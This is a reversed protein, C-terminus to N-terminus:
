FLSPLSTKLAAVIIEAARQSGQPTFHVIDYLYEKEPPIQAALDIVPIDNKGGTERIEDNFSDFLKKYEFYSSGQRSELDALSTKIIPDPIDKLRSPQTMLVPQIRHLRCLDIFLQLNRRFSQRMDAENYRIKRNRVRAFEDEDSTPKRSKRLRQKIQQSLQKIEQSLNPILLDRIQKLSGTISPNVAVIASRSPNASWYTGELLLTTLDNINHCLVAVQPKLPIVKNLLINLSHLSNNGGVGSNYSNIEKGTAHELIRGALYPFRQTEEMYGCATSSGGLFVLSLDPKAHIRSPIIFGDGDIRLKYPGPTLNDAISLEAAPPVLDESFYPKYERLRVYRQIGPNSNQNRLALIKEAAFTFLMVAIILLAALTKKPNREFWSSTISVKNGVM